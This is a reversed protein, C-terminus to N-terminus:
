QLEQRREVMMIKFELDISDTALLLKIVIEYGKEAARSLPTRNHNKSDPNVGDTALLM